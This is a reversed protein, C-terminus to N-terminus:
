LDHLKQINCRQECVDVRAGAICAVAVGRARIHRRWGQVIRGATCACAVSTEAAIALIAVTRTLVMERRIYIFPIRAPM